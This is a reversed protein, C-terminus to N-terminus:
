SNASDYARRNLLTVLWFCFAVVEIAVNDDFVMRYSWKASSSMLLKGVFKGPVYRGFITAGPCVLRVTFDSRWPSDPTIVYRNRGDSIDFNRRWPKEKVAIVQVPSKCAGVARAHLRWQGTRPQHSVSLSTGSGPFTLSGQEKYANFHFELSSLIPSQNDILKLTTQFTEVNDVAGELTQFPM